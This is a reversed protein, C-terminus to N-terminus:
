LRVGFDILNMWKMECCLASYRQISGQVSFECFNTINKLRPELIALLGDFQAM